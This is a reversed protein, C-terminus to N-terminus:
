AFSADCKKRRACIFPVGMLLGISWLTVAGPEPVVGNTGPISAISVLDGGTPGILTGQGSVLDIQYLSDSTIVSTVGYLVGDSAFDLGTFLAQTGTVIPGLNTAIGTAPDVEYLNFGAGYLM